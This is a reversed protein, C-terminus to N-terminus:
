KSTHFEGKHNEKRSEMPIDRPATAVFRKLSSFGSTLPTGTSSEGSVTKFLLGSKKSSKSKTIAVSIPSFVRAVKDLFNHFALIGM